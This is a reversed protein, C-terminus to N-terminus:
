APAKEASELSPLEGYDLGIDKRAGRWQFMRPQGDGNFSSIWGGKIQMWWQGNGWARWRTEGNWSDDTPKVEYWGKRPPHTKASHWRRSPSKRIAGM